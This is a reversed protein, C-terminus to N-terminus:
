LILSHQMIPSNMKQEKPIFVKLTLKTGSQADLIFKKLVKKIKKLIASTIDHDNPLSFDILSPDEVQGFKM